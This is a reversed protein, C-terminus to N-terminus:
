KGIKTISNLKRLKSKYITLKSLNNLNFSFVADATNPIYKREVAYGSISFVSVFLIASLIIKNRIIKTM